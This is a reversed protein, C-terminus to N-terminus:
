PLLLTISRHYQSRHIYRYGNIVRDWVTLYFTHACRRSTPDGGVTAHWPPAPVITDLPGHWPSPPTYSDSAINASKNNGWLARLRWSKLHGELDHATIRFTFQDTEESVIGCTGVVVPGATQHHHIIEDLLARPWQNDIQVQLSHSSIHSAANAAGYLRVTITHLSNSLGSTNLRYGLWHNYWIEHPRRVRFYGSGVPNVTRLRFSNTTTSWRYDHWSQRQTVGDVQIKYYRAGDGYAREHNIMLSFTGGFPADKVQFFYGPDLTTDAYGSIIRDAPVHGIGMVIPGTPVFVSGALWLESVESNCCVLLHNEAVVAVSSPRFPVGVAVTSVSVPAQTLDVLLVQNAPDREPVLIAGEGADAWTLFFPHTMGTVLEERLSTSLEICVIRGNGGSAQESIYAFRLDDTVLLGIAWELNGFLVTQAGTTLDIRLLRGPNAYEVVYAHGHDEDLAIQHPATMGTSVVTAHTRDAHSLDVRLLNGSRETVYAHQRDTSVVVDEPQTYGTGLVQYRPDLRYTRWQITLDYGYNVVKVKAYNGGSTIVAFVDGDVLQNTADDNGNIPTTGYSLSQLEAASIGDFYVVGINAIKASGWPDMTRIVSTHQHWFVDRDAAAGSETGADFDFCYTGHLIATGSSVTTDVPRILDIRSIKGDYEVFILRNLSDVYDCGIAGGLGTTVPSPAPLAFGLHLKAGLHETGDDYQPTEPRSDNSVIHDFAEQLTVRGDANTDANVSTGTVTQGTLAAFLYYNFEGHNYTVGDVVENEAPSDARWAFEDESCATLIVTKDNCLDDVFGGSFCQQMCIVRYACPIQDVLSAFTADSMDGDMLGLVSSGGGGSGHDFTWIFLLDDTTMQPLGSTGNALGNLVTTVNTTNATYGTIPPSPRYRPNPRGADFFDSGNGYLVFIHADPFEYGLLAERMLVVDNWFEDYGTEAQDGSILVAYKKGM